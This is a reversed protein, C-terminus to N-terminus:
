NYTHDRNCASFTTISGLSLSLKVESECMVGESKDNRMYDYSVLFPECTDTVDLAYHIM